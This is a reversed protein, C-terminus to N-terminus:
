TTPSIFNIASQRWSTSIRPSRSCAAPARPLRCPEFDAHQFAAVPLHPLPIGEGKLPAKVPETIRVAPRLHLIVESHVSHM